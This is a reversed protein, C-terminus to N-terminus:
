LADEKEPNNYSNYLAFPYVFISLACSIALAALFFFVGLLFGIIAFLIKCFILFKLGDFSLSFIIGPMKVFSFSFIKAFVYIIFNNNLFICGLFPFLLLTSLSYLAIYGPQLGKINFCVALTIGFAALTILTGLVYSRIRRRRVLECRNRYSEQRARKEEELFKHQCDKCIIDNTYTTTHHKGHRVRHPISRRVIEDQKYLPKNCRSCLALVPKSEEKIIVKEIVKPETPTEAQITPVIAVENKTEEINNTTEEVIKKEEEGNVLYSLSVDFEKCLKKITDLSPENENMEWKSLAQPTIFLKDALQKQTMNKSIRLEKIRDGIEM